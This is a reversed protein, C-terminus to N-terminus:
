SGRLQTTRGTERAIELSSDGRELEQRYQAKKASGYTNQGGRATVHTVTSEGAIMNGDAHIAQCDDRPMFDELIDEYILLYIRRKAWKVYKDVDIAM